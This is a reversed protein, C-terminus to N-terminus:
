VLEADDVATPMSAYSHKSGRIKKDGKARLLCEKREPLIRLFQKVNDVKRCYVPYMTAGTDSKRATDKVFGLTSLIHEASLTPDTWAIMAAILSANDAGRANKVLVFNSTILSDEGADTVQSAFDEAAMAVGAPLPRFDRGTVIKEDDIFPFFKRMIHFYEPAFLGSTLSTAFAESHPVHNAASCEAGNRFLFDPTVNYIKSALGKVGTPLRLAYNGCGFLTATIDVSTAQDDRGGGFRASAAGGHACLLPKVTEPNIVKNPYEDSYGIAKGAIGALIPKCEEAGRIRDDFLYGPGMNHCLDGGFCMATYLITGKGGGEPGTVCLMGVFKDTRSFMKPMWKLIMLMKDPSGRIEVGFQDYAIWQKAQGTLWPFEGCRLVDLLLKRCEAADDEDNDILGTGSIHWEKYKALFDDLMKAAKESPTFEQFPRKVALLLRDNPEALKMTNERFNYVMAPKNAKKDPPFLLKFRCDGDLPSSSAPQVNKYIAERIKLHWGDDNFPSPVSQPAMGPLVERRPAWLELCDYAIDEDLQTMTRGKIWVGDKTFLEVSNDSVKMIKDYYRDRLVRTFSHSNRHVDFGGVFGKALQWEDFFVQTSLASRDTWPLSPHKEKALSLPADLPKIDFCLGSRHRIDAVLTALRPDSKRFWFNVGDHEESCLPVGDVELALLHLNETATAEDREDLHCTVSVKPNKFDDGEFKKIFHELLNPNESVMKDHYRSCEREWEHLIEAGLM